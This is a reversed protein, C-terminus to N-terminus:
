KACSVLILAMGIDINEALPDDLDYVADVIITQLVVEGLLRLVIISSQRQILHYLM